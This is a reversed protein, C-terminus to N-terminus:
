GKIWGKGLVRDGRYFVAAQGPTIARVPEKFIVEMVNDPLRRITAPQAKHTSRIQVECEMTDGDFDEALWNIGDAIFRRHCLADRNATLVITEDASRIEKVWMPGSSAIGFGRRQGITYKHIGEHYGLTRDNEDVVKGPRAVGDFRKRLIESFNLGSVALCADQSDSTEATSLGLSSALDRVENKTMEGLPFEISALQNLNLGALFYSQDKRKDIGRLLEPIDSHGTVVRAYHGTVLKAAGMRKAWDLLLGFKIRENCVLCPSPTRGSAYENWAPRLVLSEFEESFDVIHHTIGLQGAVVRAREEGAFGGCASRYTEAKDLRHMRLTVGIVRCGKRCQVAAAVSSDVGGSMAVVVTDVDGGVFIPDSSAYTSFSQMM